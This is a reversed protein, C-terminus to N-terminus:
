ELDINVSANFILRMTYTGIFYISYKIFSLESRDVKVFFISLDNRKELGVRVNRLDLDGLM